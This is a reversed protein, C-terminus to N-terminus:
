VYKSTSYIYISRAMPHDPFFSGCLKRLVRKWDVTAEAISISFIAHPATNAFQGEAFHTLSGWGHIISCKWTCCEVPPSSGRSPNLSGRSRQLSRCGIDLSGRDPHLIGCDPISSGRSANSSGRNANWSQCGFHSWFWHKILSICIRISLIHGM